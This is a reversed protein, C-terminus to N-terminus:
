VAYHTMDYFLYGTVYGSFVPSMYVNGFVLRFIFYFLLALPISIAPVMVLRYSDAPYDHHVGHLIFNIQKGLKGPPTWHFLFRHLNYEAFTWLVFGLAILLIGYFPNVQYVFFTQYLFFGIVPVFLILPVSFHVRSLFDLLPNEFMQVSEDKNSVFNRAM